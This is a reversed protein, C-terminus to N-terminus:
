MKYNNISIRINVATAELEADVSSGDSPSKSAAAACMFTAPSDSMTIFPNVNTTKNESYQQAKYLM